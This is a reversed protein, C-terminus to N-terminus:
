AKRARKTRFEIKVGESASNVSGLVESKNFSVRKAIGNEHANVGLAQRAIGQSRKAAIAAYLKLSGHLLDGFAAVSHENVHSPMFTAPDSERVLDASICKLVLAHIRDFRIAMQTELSIQPLVAQSSLDEPM